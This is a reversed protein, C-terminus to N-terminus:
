VGGSRVGFPVTREPEKQAQSRLLDRFDRALAQFVYPPLKGIIIPWLMPPKPTPPEMPLGTLPDPIGAEIQRQQIRQIAYLLPVEGRGLKEMYDPDTVFPVDIDLTNANYGALREKPKGKAFVLWGKDLANMLNEKRRDAWKRAIENTIRQNAEVSVTM